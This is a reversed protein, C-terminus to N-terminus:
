PVFEVNSATLGSDSESVTVRFRYYRTQPGEQGANTLSQKAAVLVKASNEEDSELAAEVIEGTARVEAQQVITLFPDVRGDFETKFKGSALSLIRDIDEAATDANITTLNLIAQEATQVYETRRDAQRDISRVAFVSVVAGAVLAAILVAAAAVLVIGRTGFGTSRAPVDGAVSEEASKSSVVTAAEGSVDEDASPDADASKSLVVTASEADAIQEDSKKAAAPTKPKAEAGVAARQGAASRTASKSAGATTKATASAGTDAAGADEVPPGATRVARRRTRRSDDNIDSM